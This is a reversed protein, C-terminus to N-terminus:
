LPLRFGLLDIGPAPSWDKEPTRRFGLREYLRHADEQVPQSSLVVATCGLERSRAIVERVLAEAVGQRRASPSVALMRFEAEGPGALERLASGEPCFTVTGVVVGDLDAVYVDADRARGSVDALHEAYFDEETLIGSAVYAHLTLRGVADYEEPAALRVVPPM